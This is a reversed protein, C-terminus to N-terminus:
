EEQSYRYEEYEEHTLKGDNDQDMKKYKEPDDGFFKKFEQFTANGDQDADIRSFCIHDEGSEDAFCFFTPSILMLITLCITSYKKM